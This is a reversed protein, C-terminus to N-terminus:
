RQSIAFFYVLAAAGIIHLVMFLPVLVFFLPKKTKHHCVHMGLLAGVPAIAAAILLTSEPTRWKDHQAKHKDVAYMGFVFLQLAAYVGLFILPHDTVIGFIRM